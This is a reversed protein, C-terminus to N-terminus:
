YFSRANKGVNKNTAIHARPLQETIAAANHIETHMENTCIPIETYRCFCVTEKVLAEPASRGRMAVRSCLFCNIFFLLFSTRETDNSNDIYKYRLM